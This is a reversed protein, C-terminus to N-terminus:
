KQQNLLIWKKFHYCCFEVRKNLQCFVQFCKLGSFNFGIGSIDVLVLSLLYISNTYLLESLWNAM